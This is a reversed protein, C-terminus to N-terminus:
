HSGRRGQGYVWTEHALHEAAEGAARAFDADQGAYLIARSVSIIANQGTENCADRMAAAVTAGQAGVGPVLLMCGQDLNRIERTAAPQTAGVVLGVEAPARLGLANRAVVMYLPEGEVIQDQLDSAGLNSTKCLVFAATSPRELFARVSDWGVYPNVTVADFHLADFISSAYHQATNGIDGRKADAIVPIGSPIAERVQLLAHWGAPGLVEFFAFNMKFVLAYEATAEVIARCFAVIGRADRSFGPPLRDLDPDLGVCLWSKQQTARARLIHSLLLEQFEPVSDTVM